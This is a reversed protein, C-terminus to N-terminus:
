PAHRVVQQGNVYIQEDIVEILIAGFRSHWVWRQASGNGTRLTLEGHVHGPLTDPWPSRAAASRPSPSM